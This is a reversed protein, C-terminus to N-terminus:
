GRKWRRRMYQCLCRMTSIHVITFLIVPFSALAFAYSLLKGCKFMVWKDYEMGIYMLAGALLYSLGLIAFVISLVREHLQMTHTLKLQEAILVLTYGCGVLTGWVVCWIAYFRACFEPSVSKVRCM